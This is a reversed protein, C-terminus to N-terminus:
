RVWATSHARGRGERAGERAADRDVGGALNTRVIGNDDYGYYVDLMLFRVGANLQEGVTITHEASFFNYASSSM